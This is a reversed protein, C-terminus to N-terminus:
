LDKENIFASWMDAILVLVVFKHHGSHRWKMFPLGKTAGIALRQADSLPLNECGRIDHVLCCEIIERENGVQNLELAKKIVQITHIKLGGTERQKKPHNRCGATDFHKKNALYFDLFPKSIKKLYLDLDEMQKYTKKTTKFTLVLALMMYRLVM